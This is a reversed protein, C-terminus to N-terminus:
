EVQIHGKMGFTSHFPKDCHFEYTGAEALPVKLTVTEQSPLAISQLTNGAPDMITLNHGTNSINEVRFVIVDGKYAKINNPEFKFDSAKLTFAIEGKAPGITVLPQQSACAAAALLIGTCVAIFGKSKKEMAIEERKILCSELCGHFGEM